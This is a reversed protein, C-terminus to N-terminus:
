NYLYNYKQLTAAGLTRTTLKRFIKYIYKNFIRILLQDTIKEIEKTVWFSLRWILRCSQKSSLFCTKSFTINMIYNNLKLWFNMSKTLQRNPDLFTESYISFKAFFILFIDELVLLAFM